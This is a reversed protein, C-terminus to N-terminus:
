WIYTEPIKNTFLFNGGGKNVCQLDLHHLSRDIYWFSNVTIQIPLGLYLDCYDALICLQFLNPELFLTQVILLITFLLFRWHYIQKLRLLLSLSFFSSFYLVNALLLYYVFM